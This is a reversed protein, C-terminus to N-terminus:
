FFFFSIFMTPKPFKLWSAQPGLSPTDMSFPLKSNYTVSKSVINLSLENTLQPNGEWVFSIQKMNNCPAEAKCASRAMKHFLHFYKPCLFWSIWAHSCKCGVTGVVDSLFVVWWPPGRRAVYPGMGLLRLFNCSLPIDKFDVM